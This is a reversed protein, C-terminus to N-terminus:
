EAVATYYYTTGDYVKPEQRDALNVRVGAPELAARIRAMMEEGLFHHSLDLSKLHTLPPGSLLAEGGVDTLTGMSLDLTELQPLVGAGAVLGAVKDQEDSDQLGLHRLAPFRRGDIIPQLDEVTWDAGYEDVGLWLALERLAPLESEAVARIVSGPLGGTEIRLTRLAEHRVPELKLETGGRVGLETLNPFHRLLPTVDGQQIWSIEAQEMVIDGLFIGTLAPFRERAGTLLGIAVDAHDADYVEGWPGFVLATVSETDVTSLFRRWVQEFPEEADYVEVGVRWAVPGAPPQEQGFDAVPLGHFTSLHQDVTM